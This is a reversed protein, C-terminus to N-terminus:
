QDMSRLSTRHDQVACAILDPLRQRLRLHGMVRMKDKKAVWGSGLNM